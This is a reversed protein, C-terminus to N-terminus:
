CGDKVTYVRKDSGFHGGHVREKHVSLAEVSDVRVALVLAERWRRCTHGARLWKTCEALDRRVPRSAIKIHVAFFSFFFPFIQFPTRKIDSSPHRKM